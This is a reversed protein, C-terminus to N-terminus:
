LFNIWFNRRSCVNINSEDDVGNADINQDKNETLSFNDCNNEKIIRHQSNNLDNYKKNKPKLVFISKGSPIFILYFNECM